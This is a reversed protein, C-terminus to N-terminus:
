TWTQGQKPGKKYTGSATMGFKFEIQGTPEETDEDFVVGFLPNEVLSKGKKLMKKGRALAAEHLPLLEAVFAKVAPDDARVVLKVSYEGEAKFKTDPANLKPFKFTGKPTTFQPSQPRKAMHTETEQLALISPTLFYGM